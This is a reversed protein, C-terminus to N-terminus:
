FWDAVLEACYINSQHHGFRDTYEFPIEKDLEWGDFKLIFDAIEKIYEKRIYKRLDEYTKFHDGFPINKFEAECSYFYIQAKRNRMMDAIENYNNVKEFLKKLTM